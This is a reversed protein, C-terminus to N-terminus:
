PPSMEPPLLGRHAVAGEGFLLLDARDALDAAAADDEVSTLAFGRGGLLACEALAVALGGDACDQASRLLGDGILERCCRQM